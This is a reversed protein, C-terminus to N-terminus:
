DGSFFFPPVTSSSAYDTQWNLVVLLFNNQLSKFLKDRDKMLCGEARQETKKERELRKKENNTCRKVRKKRRQRMRRERKRERM